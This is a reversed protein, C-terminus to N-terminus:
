NTLMLNPGFLSIQLSVKICAFRLGNAGAQAIQVPCQREASRRRPHSAGLERQAKIFQGLRADSSRVGSGAVHGGEEGVEM